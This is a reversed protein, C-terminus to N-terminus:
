INLEMPTSISQIREVKLGCYENVCQYYNSFQIMIRKCNPCQKIKLSDVLNMYKAGYNGM